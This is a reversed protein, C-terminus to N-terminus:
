KSVVFKVTSTESGNSVKVHYMGNSLENNFEIMKNISGEAVINEKQIMRGTADLIEVSLNGEFNSVALQVMEGNSPNPYLAISANNLETTSISGENELTPMGAAALTRVCAPTATFATFSNDAHRARIRVDHTQGLAIAPILSMALIRSGGLSGNM